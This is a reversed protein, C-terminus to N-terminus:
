QGSEMRDAKAAAGAMARLAWGVVFGVYFVAIAWVITM